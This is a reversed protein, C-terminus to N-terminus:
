ASAGPVAVPAGSRLSEVAAFCARHVNALSALEIPQVGERVASLFRAVETGHGKDQSKLRDRVHKDGDYLELERFDDLIATRAGAFLELREKAVGPSGSAVYAITGVSGDAMDATIVVNDRAQVPLDAVAFGSASVRVVEAGTVFSLSDFFHCGEGVIRGGGEALDHLWHQPPLNGASVRYVASIPAGAAAVHERAAVMHPSFRRNFGVTLVRGAVEAAALVEALEEEDLALPKECFVHKGAALCKTALRAHSGHRTAIVVADVSADAILDDEGDAVRAFGSKRATAEASPGSGGAVAALRAGAAKFAPVLVGNAFGGPGLLGIRVAGGAALPEPPAAPRPVAAEAAGETAQPYSFALAGRPRGEPPGSLRAYAEEAREIPVVDDILDRLVLAGRAQLDLVCAMNRQETWRVYGIPYDLGREEYELDYRGPGYSRSVRFALEKNFFLERPVEVPVTGVLVVAARDRAVEGALLLPDASSSAATVIAQDV